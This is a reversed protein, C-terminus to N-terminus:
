LGLGRLTMSAAYKYHGNWYWPIILSLDSYVDVSPLAVDFIFSHAIRKIGNSCEDSERNEDLIHKILYKSIKLQLIIVQTLFSSM